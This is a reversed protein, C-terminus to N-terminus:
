GPRLARGTYSYPQEPHNITIHLYPTNHLLVGFNWTRYKIILLGLGKQSHELKHKNSMLQSNMYRMYKTWYLSNYMGFLCSSDTTIPYSHRGRNDNMTIVVLPNTGEPPALQSQMASPGPCTKFVRGIKLNLTLPLPTNHLLVGFNWTRYKIILLGLGKQSHELKHKNSMLQSNMYRM